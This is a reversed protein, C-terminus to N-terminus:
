HKKNWDDLLPIRVSMTSFGLTGTLFLMWAKHKEGFLALHNQCLVNFISLPSDQGVPTKGNAPKIVLAEM